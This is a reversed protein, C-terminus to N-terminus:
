GGALLHFILVVDGDNVLTTAYDEKEVFVDNVKVIIKAFTYKKLEMIQAISMQNFDFSDERNNLTIKM